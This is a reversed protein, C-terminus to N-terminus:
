RCSAYLLDITSNMLSGVVRQAKWHSHWWGDLMEKRDEEAFTVSAAIGAQAMRRVLRWSGFRTATPDAVILVSKAGRTRLAESLIPIVEGVCDVIPLHLVSVADPPVGLSILHDRSSDAPYVEWSAQSGACIIAPAAGERYLQAAYNDGQMRPDFSFHLIVDARAVKSSAFFFPLSVIATILLIALTALVFISRQLTRRLSQKM